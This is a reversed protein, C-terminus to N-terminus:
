VTQLVRKPKSETTVYARAKQESRADSRGVVLDSLVRIVEHAVTRYEAEKVVWNQQM